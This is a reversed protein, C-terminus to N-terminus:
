QVPLARYFEQQNTPSSYDIYIYPQSPLAVNTLTMWNSSSLNCSAQIVYNSGLPGDVVVGAFFSFMKIDVSALTAPPSTVYSAQNWVTVTYSGVDASSFNTIALTANTAGVIPVGNAFWQCTFPPTGSVGATLTVSGGSSVTISAITNTITPPILPGQYEYAGLDVAGLVIRPNGDLDTASTVLSNDGANICPSTGLLHYNGAAANVFQPDSSINGPGSALPEACCYDLVGNTDYNPDSAANNDFVICNTLSYESGAVGAVVGGSNTATNAVITCNILTSESCGGGFDASNSSVLCNNLMGGEAGGGYSGGPSAGYAMNESVICNNLTCTHVGGGYGYSATNGTVTCNNLTSGIAGGGYGGFDIDGCSNGNLVSNSLTCDSAGGGIGDATGGGDCYNDNLASNIVTCYYAGGGGGAGSCYNGTLVSNIVTCGYAGGGFAGFSWGGYWAVNGSVICNSLTCDAAGGGDGQLAYYIGSAIIGPPSINGSLTCNYLTAGYAGAGFAAGNNTFICNCLTGGSDGGGNRSNNGIFSCNTIVSNSSACFVGGGSSGGIFGSYGNQLTFGSLMANTGLWVCRATAPQTNTDPVGGGVIFTAGPGNVSELTIANTVFVVNTVGDPGLTDGISYTGNTVLVTDGDTAVNVAEQIVHFANTWASGPGDTPSNQWVCWTSATSSQSTLMSFLEVVTFILASLRSFKRKM